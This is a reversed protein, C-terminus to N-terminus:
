PTPPSGSLLRRLFNKFILYFNTFFNIQINAKHKVIIPNQWFKLLKRFIPLFLVFAPCQEFILVNRLFWFIHVGQNIQVQNTRDENTRSRVAPGIGSGPVPDFGTQGLCTLDARFM